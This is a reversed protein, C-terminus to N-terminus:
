ADYHSDKEDSFHGAILTKVTKQIYKPLKPWAYAINRLDSEFQKQQESEEAKTDTVTTNKM